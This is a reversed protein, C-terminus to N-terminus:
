SLVVLPAFSAQRSVFSHHAKHAMLSKLALHVVLYFFLLLCALEGVDLGVFTFLFAVV